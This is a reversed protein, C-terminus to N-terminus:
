PTAIWGQRRYYALAALEYMADRSVRLGAYTPVWTSAGTLPPEVDVPSAALTVDLKRTRVLAEVRPMQLRSAILAIRGKLRAAYEAVFDIQERTTGSEAEQRLRDPPVGAEVLREVLWDEGSVVIVDPSYRRHIRVTERVRGVANDGGLVIVAQVRRAETDIPSSALTPLRAAIANSLIPLGLVVYVVYLGILWLRGLRRHKPWIYILFLGVTCGAALFALSGPALSKAIDLASM